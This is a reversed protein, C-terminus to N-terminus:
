QISWGNGKVIAGEFIDVNLDKLNENPVILDGNITTGPNISFGSWMDSEFSTYTFRVDGNITVAPSNELSLHVQTRKTNAVLDLAYGGEAVEITASLGNENNEEFYFFSNEVYIANAVGNAYLNVGRMGLIEGDANPENVFKILYKGAAKEKGGRITGNEINLHGKANIAADASNVRFFDDSLTITKDDLHLYTTGSLEIPATLIIDTIKIDSLAEQLEDFTAVEVGTADDTSPMDEKDGSGSSVINWGNGTATAPSVVRNTVYEKFENDAVVFDGNVSSNGIVAVSVDAMEVPVRTLEFGVNGNILCNEQFQIGNVGKETETVHMYAAYGNSTITTTGTLIATHNTKYIGNTVGNGNMEVSFISLIGTSELLYKGDAAAKSGNIAGRAVMLYDTATIAARNNGWAFSESLSLTYNLLALQVPKNIVLPETLEINNVLDILTREEGKQPEALAAKLEDLTKVKYQQNNYFVGAKSWSEQYAEGIVVDASKSIVQAVNSYETVLDGNITGYMFQIETLPKEVSCTFGINGNITGEQINLYSPQVKVDSDFNWHVAYGGTEVLAINSNNVARFSANQLYIGTSIGKGVNLSVGNFEVGYINGEIFNDPLENTTEKELGNITGHYIVLGGKSLTFVSSKSNYDDSLLLTNEQLYLNTHKNMVVLPETLAIDDQVYICTEIDEIALASKLEDFTSVRKILQGWENYEDEGDGGQQADNTWTLEKGNDTINLWYCKGRNFLPLKKAPTKMFEKNAVDLDVVVNSMPTPNDETGNEMFLIYFNETAGAKVTAKNKFTLGLAGTATVNGHFEDLNDLQFYGGTVWSGDVHIGDFTRDEKSTNTYVIRILGCFQDFHVNTEDTAGGAIMYMNNQFYETWADKSNDELAYNIKLHVEGQENVTRPPYFALYERGKTLADLTSFDASAAPKENTYTESISFEHASLKNTEDALQYLVFQDGENWHFSEKEKSTGNLVIQARTEAEKKEMSATLHYIGQQSHKEVLMDDQCATFIMPLAALWSYKMLKM